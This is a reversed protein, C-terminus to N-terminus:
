HKKNGSLSNKWSKGSAKIPWNRLFANAKAPWLVFANFDAKLHGASDRKAQKRGALARCLWIWYHWCLDFASKRNTEAEALSEFSWFFVWFIMFFQRWFRLSFVDTFLRSIFIEKIALYVVITFAFMVCKVTLLNISFFPLFCVFM